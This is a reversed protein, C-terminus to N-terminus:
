QVQEETADKDANIRNVMKLLTNIKELLESPDMGDVLMATLLRISTKDGEKAGTMLARIATQALVLVSSFETNTLAAIFNLEGDKFDLEIHEDDSM